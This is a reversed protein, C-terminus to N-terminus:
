AAKKKGKGDLNNKVSLDKFRSGDYALVSLKGGFEVSSELNFSRQGETIVRGHANSHGHVQFWDRPANREFAADIDDQRKGVGRWCQHGAFLQPWRIVDSIAGHSVQFHAGKFVFQLMHEARGLLYEATERNFGQRLLQPLTKNRFEGPQERKNLWSLIHREHNGCLLKVNPKKLLSMILKLVTANDPGRDFLDGVFIYLKQEDFHKNLFKRLPVACGHVDGIFVIERYQHSYDPTEKFIQNSLSMHNLLKVGAPAPGSGEHVVHVTYGWKKALAKYRALDTDTLEVELFTTEGLAMRHELIEFVKSKVLDDLGSPFGLEGSPLLSPSAYMSRLADVNIALSELGGSKLISGKGGGDPLNILYLDLM